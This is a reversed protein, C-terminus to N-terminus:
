YSIIYFMKHAYQGNIKKRKPSCGRCISAGLRPTSYSSDLLWLLEPDLPRRHGVGCSVPSDKVWQALGPISGADEHISTTNKAKQAM